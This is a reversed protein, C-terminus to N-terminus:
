ALIDLEINIDKVWTQCKPWYGKVTLKVEDGAQVMVGTFPSNATFQKYVSTRGLKQSVGGLDISGRFVNVHFSGCENGWGQEKANANMRISKLEGTFNVTGVAVVKTNHDVHHLTALSIKQTKITKQAPPTTGNGADGGGAGADAGDGPDTYKPTPKSGPGMTFYWVVILILGITLPDM